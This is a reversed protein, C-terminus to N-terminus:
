KEKIQKGMKRYILFQQITLIETKGTDEVENYQPNLLNNAELPNESRINTLKNSLFRRM